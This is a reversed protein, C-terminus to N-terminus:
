CILLDALEPDLDPIPGKPNEQTHVMDQIDTPWEYRFVTLVCTNGEGIVGGGTGEKVADM